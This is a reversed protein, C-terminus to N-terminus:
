KGQLRKIKRRLYNLKKLLKENRIEAWARRDRQIKYEGYWFDSRKDIRDLMVIIDTGERKNRFINFM